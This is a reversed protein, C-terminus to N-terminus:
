LMSAIDGDHLADELRKLVVVGAGNNFMTGQASADFPRCHGDGSLMSGEQAVYGSNQPTTISVGGSLALDCQYSTLAQCAQIVAVLSTSCATNVSVAPGKLNLKYAARTTLFDKENALM